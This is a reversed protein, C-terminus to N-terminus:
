LEWLEHFMARTWHLLQAEQLAHFALSCDSTILESIETLHRGKIKM